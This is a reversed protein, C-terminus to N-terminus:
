KKGKAAAGVYKGFLEGKKGVQQAVFEYGRYKKRLRAALGYVYGGRGKKIVAFKGPRTRLEALVQDWVTKPAKPAPERWELKM